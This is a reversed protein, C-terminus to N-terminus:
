VDSVEEQGRNGCQGSKTVSELLGNQYEANWENHTSGCKPCALDQYVSLAAQFAEPPGEFGCELCEVVSM